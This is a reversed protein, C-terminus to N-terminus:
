RAGVRTEYEKEFAILPLKVPMSSSRAEPMQCPRLTIPEIMTANTPATIKTPIVM